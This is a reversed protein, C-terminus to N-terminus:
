GMIRIYTKRINTHLSETKTRTFSKACMSLKHLKTGYHKNSSHRFDKGCISCPHNRKDCLTM